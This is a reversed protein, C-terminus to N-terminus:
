DAKLEAKTKWCGPVYHGIAKPGSLELLLQSIGESM